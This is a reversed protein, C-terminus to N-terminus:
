RFLDYVNLDGLSETVNGWIDDCAASNNHTKIDGWYYLCDNDKYQQLLSQPIINFNAFTEAYCADADYDWNTAGNGVMFGKLPYM